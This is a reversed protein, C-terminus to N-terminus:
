KTFPIFDKPYLEYDVSSQPEGTQDKWSNRNIRVKKFGLREYVHQARRNKLNTDLVIKEYGCDHFLASILMSLVIKGIGKNQRSFDCTKIGIEATLNGKNRYNMEGISTDDLEIILRRGTQDSDKQLSDAIEQVTQGTGNPFGAHAMVRGDNWWAALQQADNEVANRITINRYELRM